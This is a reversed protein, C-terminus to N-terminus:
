MTVFEASVNGSEMSQGRLIASLALFYRERSVKFVHSPTNHEIELLELSQSVSLRLKERVRDDRLVNEELLIANVAAEQDVAAGLFGEASITLFAELIERNEAVWTRRALLCEGFMQLGFDRWRLYDFECPDARSDLIQDPYGTGWWASIFDVEGSVLASLRQRYPIDRLRISGGDFGLSDALLQLLFRDESFGATHGWTRHGYDVPTRMQNGKLSLTGCPCIKDRV